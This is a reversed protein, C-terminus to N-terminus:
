RAAQTAPGAAQTTPAASPATAPLAPVTAPSHGDLVATAERKAIQCLIWGYSDLTQFDTLAPMRSAYDAGADFAQRAEQKHGLRYETAAALFENTGHYADNFRNSRARNLVDLAADYNGSRYEVWGKSLLFFSAFGGSAGGIAAKDALARILALDPAAGPLLVCARATREAANLSTSKEFRHLMERCTDQYAAEDGGYAFFTAAIGWTEDNSTIEAAKRASRGAEVFKGLQLMVCAREEHLKSDQSDLEVARSYEDAAEALRHERRLLRAMEAPERSIRLSLVFPGVDNVVKVLITNWGARLKVRVIGRETLYFGASAHEMVPAGNLFVKGADDFGGSMVEESEKECYIRCQVYAAVHDYNIMSRLNLDMGNDVVPVWHRENGLPKVATVASNAPPVSGAPATVQKSLDLGSPGLDDTELKDPFPGM